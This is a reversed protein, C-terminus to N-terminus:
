LAKAFLTYRRMIQGYRASISHSKSSDHMLAHIVRKYGLQRARRHSEYALYSGLGAYSRMSSIVLTKIIATDIPEGRTPQLLDPVAFLVGVLRDGDEALTIL